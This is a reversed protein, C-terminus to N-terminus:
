AAYDKDNLDAYAKSFEAIARDFTDGAGLYAAIAIRDGSRAHAKALTWGCLRAYVTMGAPVMQEIEVSGKWDHLQRVYFDRLQGDFGLVRQWGLLSDSSTQMLKQGAVVRHGANTYESRGAFGELVSAGAEKIQLFLPDNGDRGLFLAVWARTGVSGVGVVKRALEIFRYDELLRRRESSLTTRYSRLAKEITQQLAELDAGSDEATALERAPVLLPPDSLFRPEGDVTETLKSFARLHDKTRAKAFLKGSAKSVRARQAASLQASADEVGYHANWVDLNGMGAFSAMATRYTGVAALVIATREADAFGNGRAAIEISAALRKVDWEWPGPLTEDFDNIDFVLQREPSAFLGFNSLHADGCAQVRLGTTATSALDSAMIMAAGRYFAFPSTLMRGYRIPVLDQVRTLGQQELLAVPDPRTSPPDVVGHSTRPVEARAAKGRAARESPTLHPVKPAGRYRRPPRHDEVVVPRPEDKTASAM